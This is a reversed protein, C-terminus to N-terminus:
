APQHVIGDAHTVVAQAIVLSVTYRYDRQRQASGRNFYQLVDMRHYLHHAFM